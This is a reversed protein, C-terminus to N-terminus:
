TFIDGISTLCARIVRASRATILKLRAVLPVARKQRGRRKKRSLRIERATHGYAAIDRRRAESSYALEFTVAQCCQWNPFRRGKMVTVFNLANAHTPVHIVKYTGSESVIQGPQFEQVM